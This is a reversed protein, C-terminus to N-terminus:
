DLIGKANTKKVNHLRSIHQITKKKVGQLFYKLLQLVNKAVNLFLNKLTKWKWIKKEEEM